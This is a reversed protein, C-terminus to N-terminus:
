FYTITVDAPTGGTLVLFLGTAFAIDYFLSVQALTSVTALKTGSTSTGDYLVAASTLGATNVSIGHWIGAGSKVQYGATDSTTNYASAGRPESQTQLPNAASIAVGSGDFLTVGDTINTGDSGFQKTPTVVTPLSVGQLVVPGATM